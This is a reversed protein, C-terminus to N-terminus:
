DGLAWDRLAALARRTMGVVRLRAYWPRRVPLNQEAIERLRKVTEPDMDSKRLTHGAAANEQLKALMAARAEPRFPEGADELVLRRARRMVGRARWGLSPHHSTKEAM